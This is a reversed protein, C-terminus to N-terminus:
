HVLLFARVEEAKVAPTASIDERRKGTGHVASSVSAHKKTPNVIPQRNCIDINLTPLKVSYPKWRLM